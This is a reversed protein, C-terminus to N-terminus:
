IEHSCEIEFPMAQAVASNVFNFNVAWHGGGDPETIVYNHSAVAMLNDAFQRRFYKYASIVHNETAGVAFDDDAGFSDYHESPSLLGSHTFRQKETYEECGTCVDILLQDNTWSSEGNRNYNQDLMVVAPILYGGCDYCKPFALDFVDIVEFNGKDLLAIKYIPGDGMYPEYDRFNKFGINTTVDFRAPRSGFMGAFDAHEGMDGAVTLYFDRGHREYFKLEALIGHYSPVDLKKRYTQELWDYAVSFGKEPNNATSFLIRRIKNYIEASM